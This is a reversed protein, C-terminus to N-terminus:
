AEKAYLELSDRLIVDFDNKSPDIYSLLAAEEESIDLLGLKISGELDGAILSRFLFTPQIDPTAIVTDHVGTPVLARHGGYLGPRLDYRASPRGFGKLYSRHFSWKGLQPTAWGFLEREVTDPLVHVSRSSLGAFGEPGVRTGTLVSGRIWRAPGDIVPGTLHPLPAGQVTRVLRPQTVGTGVAAYVRTGDYRGTLFLRGVIVADWARITFVRGTGTPPRIHSVQVAPDGAPHPGSFTHVEAGTLGQFAPHAAGEAHTLVVGGDTLRGLVHIGAQLAERDEAALLADPGPQLPGTEMGDVLVWQPVTSPSPLHDLPRTRLLPWVGGALMQELVAERSLSPLADLAHTAHQVVGGEAVTDIVFGTIVRRAGRRIEKVRGAVPAVVQVRPEFKHFMLPQGAKVEDGERAALRPIFGRLERPDIGVTSPLDLQVAPGAAEGAIPLDLGRRIPHHAM